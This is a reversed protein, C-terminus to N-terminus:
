FGYRMGVNFKNQDGKLSTDRGAGTKVDIDDTAFYRYDLTLTLQQSVEYGLGVIGQYALAGASDDLVDPIAAVGFGNYSVNAYGLGAGLYPVFASGTDFDHILNAMAYFTDVDGTSGDLTSGGNLTHGDVDAQNYGVEIEPRFGGLSWVKGTNYGYSASLGYGTDFSTDIKAGSAYEFDQDKQDVVSLNLAGYFGENLALAPGSFGLLAASLVASSLVATKLSM